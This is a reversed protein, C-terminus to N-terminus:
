STLCLKFSLTVPGANVDSEDRQRRLEEEHRSHRLTGGQMRIVKM